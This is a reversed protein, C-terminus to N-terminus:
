HDVPLVVECQASTVRLHHVSCGAGPAATHGGGQLVHGVPHTCVPGLGPHQIKDFAKEADISIIMHIKDKKKQPHPTDCQNTCTSGDKHRM